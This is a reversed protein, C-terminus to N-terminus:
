TLGCGQFSTLFQGTQSNCQFVPSFGDFVAFQPKKVVGGYIVATLESQPM